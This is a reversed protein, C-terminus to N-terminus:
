APRSARESRLLGLLYEGPKGKEPVLQSFLGKAEDRAESSSFDITLTIGSAFTRIGGKRAEDELMKALQEPTMTSRRILEQTQDLNFGIAKINFEPSAMVKSLVVGLKHADFEGQIRTLAVNIELAKEDSVDLVVAWASEPMALGREDCLEKMARIRSHGDILVMGKKQVVLILVMGNALLSEKLSDLIDATIHKPNYVNANIESLKVRVPDHMQVGLVSPPKPPVSARTKGIKKVAPKKALKPNKRPTRM